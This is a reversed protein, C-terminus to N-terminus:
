LPELGPVAHETDDPGGDGGQHHESQCKALRLRTASQTIGHKLGFPPDGHDIPDEGGGHEM